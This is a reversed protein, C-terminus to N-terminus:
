TSHSWTAAEVLSFGDNLRVRLGCAACTYDYIELITQRFAGSRAQEFEENL